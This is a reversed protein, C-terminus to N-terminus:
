APQPRLLLRVLANAPRLYVAHVAWVLALRRSVASLRASESAMRGDQPVRGKPGLPSTARWVRWLTRLNFATALLSWEASVNSLGRLLFRRGRQQEKIIGFVPEVLGMRRRFAWRAEATSMWARHRRLAADHLDIELARGNSRDKTCVGFAPCGRCTARTSRYVRKMKGRTRKHRSFGLTQGEPCIYSDSAEDYAFRDKHYPNRLAKDQSEPMAVLRGKAQSEAVNSGSHYGADAVTMEAREGLAEEAKDMMPELQSEDSLESTVEAATILMGSAEGDVEVASVMAQANYAMMLGDRTRMMRADPDTLNALEREQYEDYGGCAARLRDRLAEREELSEPLGDAPRGESENGSELEDLASELRDLLARLKAATYTRERAANARVKTGDVAQVALEVLELEVATWVTRRLLNRMGERHRRYFRWLTVHDPFQCGTLWLYPIEMRCAAELKRSSRVGTMFGYLWVGLLARPHYSPAGMRSGNSDVGLEAWAAADLTDVFEAVFRVPHNAALMEGFNPPLLWSQERSMERHPM